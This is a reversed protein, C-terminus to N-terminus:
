EFPISQRFWTGILKEDAATLSNVVCKRSGFLVRLRKVYDLESGGLGQRQAKEYPLFPDAIEIEGGIHQNM